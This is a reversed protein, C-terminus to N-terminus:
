KFFNRILKKCSSKAASLGISFTDSLGVPFKWGNIFAKSLNKAAMEKLLSDSIESKGIIDPLLSVLTGGRALNGLQGSDLMGKKVGWAIWSKAGQEGSKLEETILKVYAQYKVKDFNEDMSLFGRALLEPDAFHAGAGILIFAQQTKKTLVESMGFDFIIVKIKGNTQKVVKFNGQHLDSHIFGSKFLAEDFWLTNLGRAVSEQIKPDSIKSFKDGESMFEIVQVRSAQGSPADYIKPVYVEVTQGTEKIKIHKGYKQQGLRQNKNTTVIDMDQMLFSRVNDLLKQFDPMDEGTQIFHEQVKDISIKLIRLDDEARKEIEPKLFRVAVEIDQGDNVYVAKHVQAVTGTGIPDSSISKFKFGASDASITENVLDIPVAKGDDELIELLKGIQKGINPDKGIQQMTKGLGPGSNQFMIKFIEQKSPKHGLTILDALINKHVDLSVEHYYDNLFIKLFREQIPSSLSLAKLKSMETGANKIKDVAKGFVEEASRSLKLLETDSPDESLLIPLLEKPNIDIGIDTSRYHELLQTQDLQAMVQNALLRQVNSLPRTDTVSGKLIQKSEWKLTWSQPATIPTIKKELGIKENMINSNIQNLSDLVYNRLKRMVILKEDDSKFSQDLLVKTINQVVKKSDEVRAPSLYTNIGSVQAISRYSKIDSSKDYTSCSAVLLLWSFITLLKSYKLTVGKYAM